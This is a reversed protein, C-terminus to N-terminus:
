RTLTGRMSLGYIREVGVCVKPIVVSVTARKKWEEPYPARKIERLTEVIFSLHAKDVPRKNGKWHLQLKELMHTVRAKRLLLRHILVYTMENISLIAMPRKYSLDALIAQTDVQSLSSITFSYEGRDKQAKQSRSERSLDFRNGSYWYGKSEASISDGSTDRVEYVKDQVLDPGLNDEADVCILRDGVKFKSM